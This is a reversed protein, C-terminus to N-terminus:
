KSLSLQVLDIAITSFATQLLAPNDADFYGGDDSACNRLLTETDSDSVEFAITYIRINDAKAADCMEGTLQNALSVDTSNHDPYDPARTNSGDTLLVIAKVGNNTAIETNTRGQTFPVGNSLLRLGWSLGSAIYTSGDANMNNIETTILVQNDTLPVLPQPCDENLIGPVPNAIYDADSINAPYARSGVCGNWVDGSGLTPIALWPEGSAAPGVNVYQAFPAMGVKFDGGMSGLLANALITASDKLSTLKAGSMSGTNDLVMVAEVPGAPRARAEAGVSFPLYKQGVASLISTKTRGTITM